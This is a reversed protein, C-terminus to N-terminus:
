RWGFSGVNIMNMHTGVTGYQKVLKVENQLKLLSENKADFSLGQKIIDQCEMLEQSLTNSNTANLHRGKRQRATSTNTSTTGRTRQSQSYKKDYKKKSVDVESSLIDGYFLETVLIIYAELMDPQLRIVVRLRDLARRRSGDSIGRIIDIGRPQKSSRRNDKKLQNKADDLLEEPTAYRAIYRRHISGAISAALIACLVVSAIPVLFFFFFHRLFDLTHIASPPLQSLVDALLREPYSRGM